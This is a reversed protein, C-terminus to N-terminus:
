TAQLQYPVQKFVVGAAELREGPVTCGEAYVIRPGDHAPLAELRALTLVNGAVESAVGVSTAAFLLHVARGQFTGLLSEGLKAKTSIPSGTDSFFVFAALDSFPVGANISGWEDFIPTGLNCYQMGTPISVTRAVAELRASTTKEAIEKELEILVFRRNGGDEANLRIVAHGTTGSGAFSDMVVADKDPCVAAILHSILRVPKPYDFKIGLAALDGAAEQVTGLGGLVTLVHSQDQSRDKEVYIAGSGTLHFRTTQGRRDVIDHFKAAIFLECQAKSSWGSRVTVSEVLKREKVVIPRNFKPWFSPDLNPDVTGEDFNAPFGAPLVIESVPNAPGNKVITNSIKENRLKSDYEINPDVLSGPAFEADRRSYAIIYEHNNKIKSQNDINGENVWIFTSLFNQRGFIEDLVLRTSAVEIDNISALLVGGESLFKHLLRIRPYIMCLWKDHRTLDDGEKGVIKTLWSKIEPSSVNDDYIWGENGTNYPPDIYICKVKGAYYPLLAKLAELNDGQVLLNGADPDGFSLESDCHLLRTPVERHHNVVAAKGIWDLTPM